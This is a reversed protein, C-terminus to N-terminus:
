CTNICGPVRLIDAEPASRADHITIRIIEIVSLGHARTRMAARKRKYFERVPKSISPVGRVHTALLRPRLTARVSYATPVGHESRCTSAPIRFRSLMRTRARKCQNCFSPLSLHLHRVLAVACRMRLQSTYHCQSSWVGLLYRGPLNM